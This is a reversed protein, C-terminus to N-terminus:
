KKLSINTDICPIFLRMHNIIFCFIKFVNDTLVDARETSSFIIHLIKVRIKNKETKRVIKQDMIRLPEQTSQNIRELDDHSRQLMMVTRWPKMFLREPFPHNKSFLM